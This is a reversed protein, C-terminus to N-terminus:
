DIIKIDCDERQINRLGIILGKVWFYVLGNKM